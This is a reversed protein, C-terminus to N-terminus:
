GSIIREVIYGAAKKVNREAIVTLNKYEISIEQRVGAIQADANQNAKVIIEHAEKNADRKKERILERGTNIAEDKIKLATIKSARKTEESETEVQLIKELTEKM